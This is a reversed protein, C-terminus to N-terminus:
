ESDPVVRIVPSPGGPSELHLTGLYPKAGPEAILTIAGGRGGHGSLGDLGRAGDLGSLGSPRGLGGYGGHGGAGGRGGRGGPGGETRITLVDSAPDLLVRQNQSGSEVLIDLRLQAGKALGVKVLVAPGDGGPRGPQGDAGRGGAGGRGGPRPHKPDLSGSMGAQGNLGAPGDRGDLGKLGRFEILQAHSIGPEEAIMLAPSGMVALTLVIRRFGSVCRM